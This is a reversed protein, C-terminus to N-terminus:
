KDGISVEYLAEGNGNIFVKTFKSNTVGIIENLNKILDYIGYETIQVVINKNQSLLKKIEGKEDISEFQKIWPNYFLLEKQQKRLVSKYRETQSGAYSVAFALACPKGATSYTSILFKDAYNKKVYNEIKAAESSQFLALRYNIAIQYFTWLSFIVFLFIYSYKIKLKKFHFSLVSACLTLYFVSILFTPILYHQRYQKAVIIIQFTVAMFVIFLLKIEKKLFQDTVNKIKQKNFICVAITFIMILYSFTFFPDKTFVLGLHMFYESSNIVTPDGEGYHGSYLILRTVWETFQTYNSIAPFIFIHFVFVSVAAFIIKKKVGKILLLPIITMPLFNLKTAMGAGTILAFILVMSYSSESTEKESYLYYICTGVLCLTVPILFNDPTVIIYGYFIEMSAFPSLQILLSYLLNGTIKFVFCGLLFLVFTSIVGFIRNIIILYEEPRKLVDEVIDTSSNSLHHYSYVIVAGAVQVTIGPHDFHGVGYGNLQALNLSNILYVYSPDYFNLYYPGQADKLLNGSLFFLVPIIILLIYKNIKKM